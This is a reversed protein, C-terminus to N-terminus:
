PLSVTVQGGAFFGKTGPAYGIEGSIPGYSVVGNGFYQGQGIVGGKAIVKFGRGDYGIGYEQNTPLNYNYFARYPTNQNTAEMGFGKIDGNMGVTIHMNLNGNMTITANGNANIGAQFGSSKYTISTIKHQTAGNHKFNIAYHTTVNRMTIKFDIHGANVGPLKYVTTELNYFQKKGFPLKDLYDYYRSGDANLLNSDSTNSGESHVTGYPGHYDPIIYPDYVGYTYTGSLLRYPNYNYGNALWAFNFDTMNWGDIKHDYITTGGVITPWIFDNATITYNGFLAMKGAKSRTTIPQKTEWNYIGTTSANDTMKANTSLSPENPDFTPPDADTVTVWKEETSVPTATEVAENQCSAFGALVVLTLLKKKM